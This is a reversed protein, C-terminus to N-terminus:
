GARAVRRLPSGSPTVLSRRWRGIGDLKARAAPDARRQKLFGAGLVAAAALATPLSHNKRYYRLRTEVLLATSLSGSGTNRSSM